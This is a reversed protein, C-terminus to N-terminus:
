ITTVGITFSSQFSTGPGNSFIAIYHSRSIKSQDKWKKFMETCVKLFNFFWLSMLIPKQNIITLQYISFPRSRSSQEGFCGFNKKVINGM